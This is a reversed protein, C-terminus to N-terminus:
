SYASMARHFVDQAVPSQGRLKSPIVGDKVARATAGAGQNHASYLLSPSHPLAIGAEKLIQSNMRAYAASARLALEPNYSSPLFESSALKEDGLRKAWRRADNWSGEYFQGIGHYQGRRSESDIYAVGNINKSTPELDLIYQLLERPIDYQQAIEHTLLRLSDKRVWNKPIKPHGEVRRAPKVLPGASRM